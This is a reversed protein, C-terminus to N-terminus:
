KLTAALLALCRVSCVDWDRKAKLSKLDTAGGIREVEFWGQHPHGGFHVEGEDSVRQNCVDCVKVIEQKTAM